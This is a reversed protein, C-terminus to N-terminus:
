ALSQEFGLDKSYQFCLSHKIHKSLPACSTHIASFDDCSCILIDVWKLIKSITKERESNEISAGRIWCINSMVHTSLNNFTQLLRIWNCVMLWIIHSSIRKWYLQERYLRTVNKEASTMGSVVDLHEPTVVM